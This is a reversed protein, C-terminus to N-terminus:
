ASPQFRYLSTFSLKIVIYFIAFSGLQEAQDLKLDLDLTQVLASSQFVMQGCGVVLVGFKQFPEKGLLLSM